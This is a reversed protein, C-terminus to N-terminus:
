AAEKSEVMCVGGCGFCRFVHLKTFSSIKPKIRVLTMPMECDLCSAPGDDDISPRLTCVNEPSASRAIHVTTKRSFAPNIMRQALMAALGKCIRHGDIGCSGLVLFEPLEWLSKEM